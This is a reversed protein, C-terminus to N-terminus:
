LPIKILKILIEMYNYHIDLYNVDDIWEGITDGYITRFVSKNNFERYYGPELERRKYRDIFRRVFSIVSIKDSTEMKLFYQKLFKLMYEEHHILLEDTIGKVDIITPNYYLELKGLHIYSTYEHKIRFMVFKGFKEHECRKLMFIADKKIALIEDDEIENMIFFQERASQFAVKLKEAFVKDERQLLGLKRDCADKPLKKLISITKEDLLEYEQVLSLGARKMDYEIIETNFIYFINPNLYLDKKWLKSSM